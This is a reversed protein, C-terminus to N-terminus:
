GGAMQPTFIIRQAAPDFEKMREGPEGDDKVHWAVYREGLLREFTAKAAAVEAPKTKDWMQKTDGPPGMWAMAHVGAPVDGFTMDTTTEM